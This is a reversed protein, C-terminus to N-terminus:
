SRRLWIDDFIDSLLCCFDQIMISFDTLAVFILWGSRHFFDVTYPLCDRVQHSDISRAIKKM